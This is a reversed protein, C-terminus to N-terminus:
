KLLEPNEYINGVVEVDRIILEVIWGVSLWKVIKRKRTITAKPGLVYKGDKDPEIHRFEVIDGEYIEVGKKDELGTLQGVTEPKVYVRGKITYDEFSNCGGVEGEMNSDLGIYLEGIAISDPQILYGYVWKNSDESLGRFKTDRM